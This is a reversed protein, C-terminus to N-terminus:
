AKEHNNLKDDFRRISAQPHIETGHQIHDLLQRSFYPALMVGKTGMGNFIGIRPNNPHLGVLPRRDEVTPRIGARHEVVEMEHPLLAVLKALLQRKGRETPKDDTYNWDFTAGVKYLNDGLPLAWFGSNLVVNVDTLSPIRVTLVEGKTLGFPLYSFYPNQGSRFGEAFILKDYHGIPTSIGNSTLKVSNPDLHGEKLAGQNILYKRVGKLMAPVDLHGAKSVIGYGLEKRVEISDIEEESDLSIYRRYGPQDTKELWMNYEAQSSFFRAIRHPFYLERNLLSELNRYFEDMVPLLDDILWSKNLKRFVVPNWMGAAVLSSSSVHGDDVVEVPMGRSIAEMALASGALGQGVILISPIENAM